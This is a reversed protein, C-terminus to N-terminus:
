SYNFPFVGGLPPTLFPPAPQTWGHTIIDQDNVSSIGNVAMTILQLM